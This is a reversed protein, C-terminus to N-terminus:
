VAFPVPKSRAARNWLIIHLLYRRKHKSHDFKLNKKKKKVKKISVGFYRVSKPSYICSFLHAEDLLLTSDLMRSIHPNVDDQVLTVDWGPM